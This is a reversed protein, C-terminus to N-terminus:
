IFGHTSDKRLKNAVLELENKIIDNNKFSKLIMLFTRLTGRDDENHYIHILYNKLTKLSNDLDDSKIISHIKDYINSYKNLNDLKNIEEFYKKVEEM